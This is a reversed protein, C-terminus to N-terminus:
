PYTPGAAGPQTQRDADLIGSQLTVVLGSGM